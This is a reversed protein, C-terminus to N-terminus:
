GREKMKELEDESLSVIDLLKQTGVVVTTWTVFQSERHEGLVDGNISQGSVGLKEGVIRKMRNTDLSMGTGIVRYTPFSSEQYVLTTIVDCPNTIVLFIGKFGSSVVQSIIAISM